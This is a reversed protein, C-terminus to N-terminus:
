DDEALHAVRCDPAIHGKDGCRWYLMSFMADYRWGMEPYMKGGCTPCVAPPNRVDVPQTRDM